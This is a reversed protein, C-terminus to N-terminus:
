AAAKGAGALFRAKFKEVSEKVRPFLAKPLDRSQKVEHLLDPYEKELFDRVEKRWQAEEPTDGFDM